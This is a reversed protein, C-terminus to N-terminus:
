YTGTLTSAFVSCHAGSYSAQSVLMMAVVTVAATVATVTVPTVTENLIRMQLPTRRMMMTIVM